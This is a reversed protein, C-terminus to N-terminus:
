VITAHLSRDQIELRRSCTPGVLAQYFIHNGHSIKKDIFLATATNTKPLFSKLFDNETFYATQNPQFISNEPFWKWNVTFYYRQGRFNM